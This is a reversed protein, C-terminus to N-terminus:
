LQRQHSDLMKLNAEDKPLPKNDDDVYSARTYKYPVLTYTNTKETWTLYRTEDEDLNLRLLVHDPKDRVRGVVQLDFPAHSDLKRRIQDVQEDSLALAKRNAVLSIERPGYKWQASTIFGERTVYVRFLGYRVTYHGYVDNKVFEGEKVAREIFGIIKEKVMPWIGKEKLVERLALNRARGSASFTGHWAAEVAELKDPTLGLEPRLRIFDSLHGRNGGRSQKAPDDHGTLCHALGANGDGHALHIVPPEGAPNRFIHAIDRHAPAGMAIYESFKLGLAPHERQIRQYDRISRSSGDAAVLRAFDASMRVIGSSHRKDDSCFTWKVNKVRASQPASTDYQKVEWGERGPAVFLVEDGIRHALFRQGDVEVTAKDGSPNGRLTALHTPALGFAGSAQALDAAKDRRDLGARHASLQGEHLLM